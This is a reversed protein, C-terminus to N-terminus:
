LLKILPKVNANSPTVGKKQVPTPKPALNSQGLLSHLAQAKADQGPGNGMMPPKKAIQPKQRNFPQSGLPGM